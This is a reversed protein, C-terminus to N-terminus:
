AGVELLASWRGFPAQPPTDELLQQVFATCEPDNELLGRQLQAAQELAEHLRNIQYQLQVRQMGSKHHVGRVATTAYATHGCLPAYENELAVLERYLADFQAKKENLANELEQARADMQQWERQLPELRLRARQELNQAVELPIRRKRYIVRTWAGEDGSALAKREEDALSAWEAQLAHFQEVLEQATLKSM